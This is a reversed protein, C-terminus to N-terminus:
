NGIYFYIEGDGSRSLRSSISGQSAREEYESWDIEELSDARPTQNYGYHTNAADRYASTRDEYPGTEMDPEAEHSFYWEGSDMQYISVGEINAPSERVNAAIEQLVMALIEDESWSAVEEADWAGYEKFHGRAAQFQEPTSLLPPQITHAHHTSASWSNRSANEGGEWRSHSFPFM